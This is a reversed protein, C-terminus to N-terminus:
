SASVEAIDGDYRERLRELTYHHDGGDPDVNHRHEARERDIGYTFSDPTIEFWRDGFKDRFVRGTKTVILTDVFEKAERLGQYAVVGHDIAYQRIRKIAPIRQGRGSNAMERAQEIVETSLAPGAEAAPTGPVAGITPWGEVEDDHLWGYTTFGDTYELWPLETDVRTVIRGDANRRVTGTPDKSPDDVPKAPEILEVTTHDEKVSQKGLYWGDYEVFSERITTVRVKDGVNFETM